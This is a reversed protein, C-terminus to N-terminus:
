RDVPEVQQLGVTDALLASPRIQPNQAEDVRSRRRHDPRLARASKVAVVMLGIGGVILGVGFLTMWNLFNGVDSGVLRAATRYTM